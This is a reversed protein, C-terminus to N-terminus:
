PSLHWSMAVNVELIEIHLQHFGSYLPMTNDQHFLTKNSAFKVCTKHSCTNDKM